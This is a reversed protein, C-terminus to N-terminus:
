PSKDKLLSPFTLYAVRRVAPKIPNRTLDKLLRRCAVLNELRALAADIAAEEAPTRNM